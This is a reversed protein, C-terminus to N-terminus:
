LVLAGHRISGRVMVAVEALDVAFGLPLVLWRRRPGACLPAVRTRYRVWPLVLLLALPQRRSMVIGAAGLIALPHSRKWFWRAHLLERRAHPHRAVVRPVDVWRRTDRVTDAWTAPSVDHHVVADPAFAAVAGSETVRLGLDTDEGAPFAFAEDFGGTAELDARRYFINCAEFFRVTSVDVSRAFPQDLLEQQNPNPITRGVVAGAGGDIAKVGAALWDPAPACDDDIFAVVPATALRWALNRGAAPGRNAGSRLVRLRLSSSSALRDLVAATDDTSGDDVVVVEFEEAPMTQAELGAILRPLRDARQYTSVAVSVRPAAM